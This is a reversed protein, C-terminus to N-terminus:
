EDSKVKALMHELRALMKVQDCKQAQAVGLYFKQFRFVHYHNGGGRFFSIFRIFSAGAGSQIEEAYQMSLILLTSYEDPFKHTRALITGDARILLCGAVGEVMKIRNIFDKASAM